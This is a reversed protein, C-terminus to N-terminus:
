TSSNSQLTCKVIFCQMVCFVSKVEVVFHWGSNWLQAAKAEGCSVPFGVREYLPAAGPSESASFAENM